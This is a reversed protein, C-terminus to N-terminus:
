ARRRRRRAAALGLAALALGGYGGARGRGGPVSCGCGGPLQEVVLDGGDPDGAGGDPTTVSVDGFAGGGDRPTVGGDRGQSGADSPAVPGADVADDYGEGRLRLTIVPVSPSSTPIAFDAEYMGVRTPTFRVSMQRSGGGPVCLPDIVATFAPDTPATPSFLTTVSGPNGLSIVERGQLGLRVRGLNVDYVPDSTAGPLQLRVNRDASMQQEMASAFPIAVNVLTSRTPLPANYEVEVRLRISGVYRLVGRWTAPMTMDGNATTAVDAEPNTATIATMAQPFAIENTRVTTTLEYSVWIRYHVNNVIPASVDGERLLRESATIRVATDDGTWAWPTFATAGRDYRDAMGIFGAIPIPFTGGFLRLNLVLRLGYQVTLIGGNRDGVASVRMSPPWRVRIEGPMVWDYDGMLLFNYDLGLTSSGVTDRFGPGFDVPGRASFEVRSTAARVACVPDDARAVSPAIAFALAAFAFPATVRRM